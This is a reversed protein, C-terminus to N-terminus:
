SQDREVGEVDHLGVGASQERVVGARRGRRGGTFGVPQIDAVQRGRDIFIGENLDKLFITSYCFQIEHEM